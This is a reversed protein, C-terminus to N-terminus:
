VLLVGLVPEVTYEHAVLFRICDAMCWVDRGDKARWAGEGLEM